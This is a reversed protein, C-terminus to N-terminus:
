SASKGRRTRAVAWRRRIDPNNAVQNDIFMRAAEALITQQDANLYAEQFDQIKEILDQDFQLQRLLAGTNPRAM